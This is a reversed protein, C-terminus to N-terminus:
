SLQVVQFGRGDFLQQILSILFKAFDAHEQFLGFSRTLFGRSRLFAAGFRCTRNKRIVPTCIICLTM